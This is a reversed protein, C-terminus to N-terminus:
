SIKFNKPKKLLIKKFIINKCLSINSNQWLEQKAKLYKKKFHLHGIYVGSTTFIACPYTVRKEVM